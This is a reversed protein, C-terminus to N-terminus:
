DPITRLVDYSFALPSLSVAQGETVVVTDEVMVWNSSRFYWPEPTLVVGARLLSSDHRNLFPPELLELGLGHGIWGEGEIPAHGLEVLKQNGADLVHNAATGATMAALVAQEVSVIENHDRHHTRNPKGFVARRTVDGRYGRHSTVFDLQLVDGAQYVHHKPYSGFSVIGRVDPDSGAELMAKLVLQECQEISLGTQVRSLVLEYVVAAIECARKIRELEAASKVLKAADLVGSADVFTAKPLQERAAEFVDYPLGLRQRPGLEWGLRARALGLEGLLGTLAAPSFTVGQYGHIESVWTQSRAEPVEVDPILLVPDSRLPLVLLMPRVDIAFQVSRHGSLYRYNSQRTAVIADLTALEMLRRTRKWRNEFEAREFDKLTLSDGQRMNESGAVSQSRAM